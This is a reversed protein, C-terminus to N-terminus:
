ERDFRGPNSRLGTLNFLSFLNNLDKISTFVYVGSYTHKVQTM